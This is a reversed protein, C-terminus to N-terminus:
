VQDTSDAHLSFRGLCSRLVARNPGAVALREENLGAFESNKSTTILRRDNKERESRSWLRGTRHRQVFRMRGRIPSRQRLSPKRSEQFEPRACCAPFIPTSLGPGTRRSSRVCRRAKTTSDTCITPRTPKALDVDTIVAGLTADTPTVTIAM